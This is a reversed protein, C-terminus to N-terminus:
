IKGIFRLIAAASDAPLDVFSLGIKFGGEASSYVSHVVRAKAEVPARGAPRMPLTFRIVVGLGSPPNAQAVIGMGGPSVDITHVPFAQAGLVVTAQTRLQKRETKRREEEPEAM